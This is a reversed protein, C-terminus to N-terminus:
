RSPRRTVSGPASSPMAAEHGAAADGPDPEVPGGGLLEEGDRPLEVEVRQGDLVGDHGM